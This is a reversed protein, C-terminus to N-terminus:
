ESKKNDIPFREKIKELKWFGISNPLYGYKQAVAKIYLCKRRAYDQFWDPEEGKGKWEFRDPLSTIIVYRANEQEITSPKFSTKIVM